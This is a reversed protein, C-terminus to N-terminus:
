LAYWSLPHCLVVGKQLHQKQRTDSESHLSLPSLKNEASQLSRQQRRQLRERQQRRLQSKQQRRLLKEKQQCTQSISIIAISIEVANNEELLASYLSRQKHVNHTIFFNM